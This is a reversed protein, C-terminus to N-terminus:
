FRGVNAGYPVLMDRKAQLRQTILIHGRLKFPFVGLIAVSSRWFLYSGPVRVNERQKGAPFNALSKWKTDSPVKPM